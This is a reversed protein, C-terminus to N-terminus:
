IDINPPKDIEQPVLSKADSDLNSRSLAERLVVKPDDPLTAPNAQAEIGDIENSRSLQNVELDDM